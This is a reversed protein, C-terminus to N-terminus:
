KNANILVMIIGLGTSVFGIIKVILWWAEKSIRVDGTKIQSKIEADKLGAEYGQQKTVYDHLPAVQRDVYVRMNNLEKDIRREIGDIHTKLNQITLKM